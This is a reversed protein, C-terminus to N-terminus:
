KNTFLKIGTSLCRCLDFILNIPLLKTSSVELVSFVLHLAKQFPTLFTRKIQVLDSGHQNISQNM